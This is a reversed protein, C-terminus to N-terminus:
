KARSTEQHGGSTKRREEYGERAEKNGEYEIRNQGSNGTM